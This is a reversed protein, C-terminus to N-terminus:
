SNELVNNLNIKFQEFDKYLIAKMGINVAGDVNKEKDDVFITEKPLFRMKDLIHYFAAPEPKKTKIDYSNIIVDFLHYINFTDKLFRELDSTFNTLLGIKYRQKLAFILKIMEPNIRKTSHMEEFIENMENVTIALSPKNKRFFDALDKFEGIHAGRYYEKVFKKIADKELGRQLSHKEFIIDAEETMIPGNLDFIIGKIIKNQQQIM